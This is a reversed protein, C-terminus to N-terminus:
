NNIPAKIAKDPQYGLIDFDSLQYSFIDKAKELNLYPLYSGNNSLQEEVAEIHNLYIHCDGFTGILEGCSMGCQQALMHLLFGYSAINFPIGLFFDCSRQIWKLSLERKPTPVWYDNDFDVEVGNVDYEFGQQYNNQYWLRYREDYTLERTYCEFGYHCPPLAMKNLEAVNWANVILRRSDPNNKLNYILESIQDVGGWDRWQKGYIPGLDGWFKAFIPDAKIANLFEEQTSYKEHEFSKETKRKYNEWADGNWINVGVEVLPKINTEGNLFWLLETIVGKTFMKKTTLLPFGERMDVRLERGFLSKTGVGTRDLKTTGKQLIEQLINLYNKDLNNRIM